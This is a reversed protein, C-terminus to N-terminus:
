KAQLRALQEQLRTITAAKKAQTNALAVPIESIPTLQRLVVDVSLVLPCGAGTAFRKAEDQTLTRGQSYPNTSTGDDLKWIAYKKGVKSNNEKVEISVGSKTLAEALGMALEEMTNGTITYKPNTAPNSTTM